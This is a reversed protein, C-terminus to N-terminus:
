PNKRKCFFGQVERSARVETANKWVKEFQAATGSGLTANSTRVINAPDAMRRNMKELKQPPDQLAYPGQSELGVGSLDTMQKPDLFCVCISFTGGLFM